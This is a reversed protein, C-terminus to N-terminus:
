SAAEQKTKINLLSEDLWVDNYTGDILFRWGPALGLFESVEPAYDTIHTVHLPSFFNEDEKYDGKWIFWGSTGKEPLHRLGHWPGSAECTQLALGLKNSDYAALFDAGHQDCKNKQTITLTAM